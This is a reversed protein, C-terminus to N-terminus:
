GIPHHHHILGKRVPFPKFDDNWKCGHLNLVPTNIKSGPMHIVKCKGHTKKCNMSHYINWGGQLQLNEPFPLSKRVTKGHCSTNKKLPFFCLVLFTAEFFVCLPFPTKIKKELSWNRYWCWGKEGHWLPPIYCRFSRRGFVWAASKIPEFGTIRGNRTAPPQTSIAAMPQPELRCPCPWGLPWLWPWGLLPLRPPLAETISASAPRAHKSILAKESFFCSPSSAIFKELGNKQELLNRKEMFFIDIRDSLIQDSPDRHEVPLFM